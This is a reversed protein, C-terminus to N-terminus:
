AALVMDSRQEHEMEEVFIKWEAPQHQIQFGIMKFMGGAATLTWRPQLALHFNQWGTNVVAYCIEVSEDFGAPVTSVRMGCRSVDEVVGLVASRGDFINTMLGVSELREAARRNAKM